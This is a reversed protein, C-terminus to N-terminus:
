LRTELVGAVANAIETGYQERSEEDQGIWIGCSTTLRNALTKDGDVRYEDTGLVANLDTGKLVENIADRVEKRFSQPAQGGIQITPDCTGHFAIAYEYENESVAELEPYSATSMSYSPVYWSVFAGSGNRYGRTGWHDINGNLEDVVTEAQEGTHPQIDGGHPSLVIIDSGTQESVEVYDGSEQAEQVNMDPNVVMPDVTVAVEDNDNLPVSTEPRPCVQRCDGIDEWNSNNLDLRARSRANGAIDTDEGSLESAITYVAVEDDGRTVRVQEGVTRGLNNLLDSTASLYTFEDGDGGFEDDIKGLTTQTIEGDRDVAKGEVSEITESRSTAEYAGVAGGVLLPTSVLGGM